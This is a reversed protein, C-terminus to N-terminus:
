EDMGQSREAANFIAFILRLGTMLLLLSLAARM